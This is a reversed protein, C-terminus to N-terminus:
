KKGELLQTKLVLILTFNYILRSTIISSILSFFVWININKLAGPIFFLYQVIPLKDNYEFTYILEQHNLRNGFYMEHDLDWSYDSGTFILVIRLLILLALLLFIFNGYDLIKNKFFNSTNRKNDKSINKM